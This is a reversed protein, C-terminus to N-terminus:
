LDGPLRPQLLGRHRHCSLSAIIRCRLHIVAAIGHPFAGCAVAYFRTQRGARCAAPSNGAPVLHLRIAEPNALPWQGWVRSLLKIRMQSFAAHPPWGRRGRLPARGRHHCESSSRLNVAGVPNSFAHPNFIALFAPSCFAVTATARLSATIRCRMHTSPLSKWQPLAGCAAAYFRTQRGARCAAPSHGWRSSLFALDCGPKRSAMPGLRAVTAQYAKVQNCCTAAVRASGSSFGPGPSSM